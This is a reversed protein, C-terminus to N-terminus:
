CVAPARVDDRPTRASLWGIMADCAVEWGPEEPLWHAHQPLLLLEAGYHKATSKNLAASVIRDDEGGVVFIPCKVKSADVKISGFMMSRYVLGSEPNLTGHIRARESEDDIRNLAIKRCGGAPVTFPLGLM